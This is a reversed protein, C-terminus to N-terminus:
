LVTSYSTSEQSQTGTVVGMIGASSASRQPNSRSLPAIGRGSPLVDLCSKLVAKWLQVLTM